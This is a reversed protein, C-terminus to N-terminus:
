SIRVHSSHFIQKYVNFFLLILYFNAQKKLFECVERALLEFIRLILFAFNGYYKKQIFVFM